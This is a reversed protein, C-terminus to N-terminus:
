ETPITLIGKETPLLLIGPALLTGVAHHGLQLAEPVRLVGDHGLLVVRLHPNAGVGAPRAPHHPISAGSGQELHPM